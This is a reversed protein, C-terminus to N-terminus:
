NAEKRKENVISLDTASARSTTARERMDINVNKISFSSFTSTSRNNCVEAPM